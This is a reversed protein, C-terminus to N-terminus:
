GIQRHYFVKDPDGVRNTLNLLRSFLAKAARARSQETTAFRISMNAECHYTECREDKSTDAFDLMKNQIRNIWPWSLGWLDFYVEYFVTESIRSRSPSAM